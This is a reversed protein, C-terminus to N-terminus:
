GDVKGPTNWEKGGAGEDAQCATRQGSPDSVTFQKGSLCGNLRELHGDFATLM